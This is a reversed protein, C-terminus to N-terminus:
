SHYVPLSRLSCHRSLVTQKRFKFLKFLYVKCHLMPNACMRLPTQLSGSELGARMSAFALTTCKAAPCKLLYSSKDSGCRWNSSYTRRGATHCSYESRAAGATLAYFLTESHSVVSSLHRGVIIEFKLM